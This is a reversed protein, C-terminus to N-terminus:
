DSVCREIYEDSLNTYSLYCEEIHEKPIGLRVLRDLDKAEFERNGYQRHLRYSWMLLYIYNYRWKVLFKREHKELIRNYINESSYIEFDSSLREVHEEHKIVGIGPVPRPIFDNSVLRVFLETDESIRFSEDFMGIEKFVDKNIAFGFGVGITMLDNILYKTQGYNDSYTREEVRVCNNVKQIIKVGGWVACCDKYSRITDKIRKLYGAALEDDDDLFVIWEGKALLVGTNRASAVGASKDKEHYRVIDKYREKFDQYLDISGDNVVIIEYDDWRSSLISDIARSLM